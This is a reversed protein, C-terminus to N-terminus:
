QFTVSVLAQPWSMDDCIEDVGRKGGVEGRIGASVRVRGCESVKKKRGM